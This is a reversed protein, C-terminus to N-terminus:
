EEEGEYYAELLEEFWQSRGQSVWEELVTRAAGRIPDAIALNGERIFAEVDHSEDGIWRAARFLDAGLIASRGLRSWIEGALALMGSLRRNAGERPLGKPSPRCGFVELGCSHAVRDFAREEPCPRHFLAQYQGEDCHVALRRRDSPQLHLAQAQVRRVGAKAMKECCLQWLRPDDTLGPLLPWVVDCGAPLDELAEPRHALLCALPDYLSIGHELPPDGPLLQAVVLTGGEEHLRAQENREAILEKAVPPLYLVDDLPGSLVLDPRWFPGTKSTEGLAAKGLDTWPGQLWPWARPSFRIWFRSPEPLQLAPRM